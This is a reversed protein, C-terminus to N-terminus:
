PLLNSSPLLIARDDLDRAAHPPAVVRAQEGAPDGIGRGLHDAHDALVALATVDHDLVLVEGAVHLATVQDGHRHGPGVAIRQGGVVVVHGARGHDRHAVAFIRVRIRRSVSSSRRPRSIPQDVHQSPRTCSILWALQASRRAALFSRCSILWALLASAGVDCENVDPCM